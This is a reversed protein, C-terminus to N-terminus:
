KELIYGSKEFAFRLMKCSAPRIYGTTGNEPPQPVVLIALHAPLLGDQDPALNKVVEDALGALLEQHLTCNKRLLLDPTLSPNTNIQVIADLLKSRLYAECSLRSAPHKVCFAAVWAPPNQITIKQRRALSTIAEAGRKNESLPPRVLVITVLPQLM